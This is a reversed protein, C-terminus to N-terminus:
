GSDPSASIQPSQRATTEQRVQKALFVIVNFFLVHMYQARHM